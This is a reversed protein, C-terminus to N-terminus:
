PRRLRALLARARAALARAGESVFTAGPGPAQLTQQALYLEIWAVCLYGYLWALLRLRASEAETPPRGFYCQTLAHASGADLDNNVIWGALDWLPESSHAYEWDLLVLGQEGVVLNHVHLDSHCLVPAVAPLDAHRTLQEALEDALNGLVPADIVAGLPADGHQPAGRPGAGRVLALARRYYLIWAAPGSNCAGRPMPLAHVRRILQAIREINVSLRVEEATWTRGHVWRMVLIGTRPDCREIGPALGAAAALALVRCEWDRDVGLEAARATPVRLSYARGGRRVRYSENVLGAGLRDVAVAGEGPVNELALREVTRQPEEPPM